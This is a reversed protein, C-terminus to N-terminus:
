ASSMHSVPPEKAQDVPQVVQGALQRRGVFQDWSVAAVLIFGKIMVQYFADIRLSDFGNQMVALLALGVGTRWMAGFGGSLATGGLVIAIVVDFEIGDGATAQGTGLRSAVMSGALAASTGSMAYAFILRRDVPIGSLRSAEANGGIAYISRGYVSRSLLFGGVLLAVVFIVSTLAISGVQATGLYAFSDTVVVIPTAGTLVLALGRAIQGVGLTAIFSNVHAKTVLIGNAVGFALGVLLAGLLAMGVSTHQALGACVVGGLAYTGGVSLDFGGGIVVYTGAVAMIGVPAWQQLVNLLNQQDAFGPNKITVAVFLAILVLV